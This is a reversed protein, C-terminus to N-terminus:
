FLYFWYCSGVLPNIETSRTDDVLGGQCSVRKYHRFTGRGMGRGSGSVRYWRGSGVWRFVTNTEPFRYCLSSTLIFYFSTDHIVTFNLFICIMLYLLLTLSGDRSDVFLPVMHTVTHWTRTIRLFSIMVVRKRVLHDMTIHIVEINNIKDCRPRTKTDKYKKRGGWWM